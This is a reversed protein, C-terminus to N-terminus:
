GKSSIELCQCFTGRAPHPRHGPGADNFKIEREADQALREENVYLGNHSGLCVLPAAM